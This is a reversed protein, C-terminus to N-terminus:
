IKKERTIDIKMLKEFFQNKAENIRQITKTQIENNEGHNVIKKCWSTHITIKKRHGLLGDNLKNSRKTIMLIFPRKFSDKIYKIPGPLNHKLRPNM